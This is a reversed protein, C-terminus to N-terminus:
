SWAPRRPSRPSRRPSPPRPRGRTARAETTRPSRGARTSSASGRSRPRSRACAIRSARPCRPRRGRHGYLAALRVGPVGILTELEARTRGSVVAVVAFRGVLRALADRAGDRIQALEPRAVIPSLSGDFDLLVGARGEAAAFAALAAHSRRVGDRSGDDREPPTRARGGFGLSRRSWRYVRGEHAARGDDGEGAGRLRGGATLNGRELAPVAREGRDRLVPEQGVALDRREDARAAADLPEAQGRGSLGLTNPAIRSREAPANRSPGASSSTGAPGGSGARCSRARSWRASACRSAGRGRRARSPRTAPPPAARPSCAGARAVVAGRVHQQARHAADLALDVQHQVALGHEVVAAGVGPPRVGPGSPALRDRGPAGLSGCRRSVVSM